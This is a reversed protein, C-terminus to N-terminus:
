HEDAGDVRVLRDRGMGDRVSVRRAGALTFHKRQASAVIVPSRTTLHAFEDNWRRANEVTHGLIPWVHADEADPVASAAYWFKGVAVEQGGGAGGGLARAVVGEGGGGGM